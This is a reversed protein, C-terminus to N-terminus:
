HRGGELDHGSVEFSAGGLDVDGCIDTPIPLEHVAQLVFQESKDLKAVGVGGSPYSDLVMRLQNMRNALPVGAPNVLVYLQQQPPAFTPLRTAVAAATGSSEVGVDSLLGDIPPLSSMWDSKSIEELRLLELEVHSERLVADCSVILHMLGRGVVGVYRVWGCQCPISKKVLLPTKVGQLAIEVVVSPAAMAYDDLNRVRIMYSGDTVDLSHKWSTKKNLGRGGDLRALCAKIEYGDKVSGAAGSSMLQIPLLINAEKNRLNECRDMYHSMRVECFKVLDHEGVTIATRRVFNILELGRIFTDYAHSYDMKLRPLQKRLKSSKVIAEQLKDAEREKAEGKRLVDLGEALILKPNMTQTNVKRCAVVCQVCDM